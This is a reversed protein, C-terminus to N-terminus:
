KGETPYSFTKTQTGANMYMYGRGPQMNTISGSWQQTAANYTSFGGQGKIMDGDGPTLNVFVEELPKETLLLYSIWNWGPTLTIVLGQPQPTTGTFELVYPNGLSGYGEDVYTVSSIEYDTLEMEQDHDYLKFTIIDGTNGYVPLQYIYRDTPPFYAALASGRCEDGCFAGVELSTSAQEEGDVSVVVIMAMYDEYPDTYPTWHNQAMVAGSFLVMLVILLKKM